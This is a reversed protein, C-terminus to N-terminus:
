RERERREEGRQREIEKERGREIQREKQSNTDRLFVLGLSGLNM